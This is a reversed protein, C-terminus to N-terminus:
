YQNVKEVVVSVTPKLKFSSVQFVGAWPQEVAVSAFPIYEVLLLFSAAQLVKLLFQFKVEGGDTLRGQLRM